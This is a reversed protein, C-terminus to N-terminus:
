IYILALWILRRKINETIPKIHNSDPYEVATICYSHMQPNKTNRQLVCLLKLWKSSSTCCYNLINSKQHLSNTVNHCTLLLVIFIAWWFVISQNLVFNYKIYRWWKVKPKWTGPEVEVCCYNWKNSGPQLSTGTRENYAAARYACTKYQWFLLM